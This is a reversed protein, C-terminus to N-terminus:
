PADTQIVDQTTGYGTTSPQKLNRYPFSFRDSSALAGQPIKSRFERRTGGDARMM